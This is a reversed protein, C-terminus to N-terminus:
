HSRRARAFALVSAADRANLVDAPSVWAKRAFTVGYRMNDLSTVSHADPGIAVTVGLDRARRLHRWDLDLRKPDCNLEVAAGVARAKELVADLDFPYPDRSLLLRGTPHGLITLHPDDLARLLRDTMRTRDMAFRGHVSAVVFDFADLLADGYDLQGDALIDAEIGKLIRFDDFSANLEDIEAHQRRVRDRSLGSAYFAAESHDTIGIYSWGRERAGRAMDAITHRGDSYVTHTHLVGRIDSDRILTPLTHSAAADVEGMGERLEPEIFDLGVADYLEAETAFPRAALSTQTGALRTQVAAVHAENGTVRWWAVTFLEPTVCHLELHAGDVYDISVSAGAGTASRVGPVRTFSQAVAVPDRRCAAVIETAGVVEARRRLVGALEAREVDPHDRVATLLSTAELLAQPYLRLSGQARMTAIGALIKEATKPGWKPLAALRGDRAAAELAEVSDIELSEHVARIRQPTLGPVRLMDLLGEPMSTRLQELYSSEGTEVLDGIVALTAPGLGRVKGLEGSHYLPAIDDASLALVGRAAGQYARVKFANEGKLELYAAIQGLVHGATRSDV